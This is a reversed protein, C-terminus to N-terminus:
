FYSRFPNVYVTTQGCLHYNAQMSLGLYVVSRIETIRKDFGQHRGSGGKMVESEGYRLGSHAGCM